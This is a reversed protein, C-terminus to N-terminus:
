KELIDTETHFNKDTLQPPFRYHVRDYSQFFCCTNTIFAVLKYIIDVPQRSIRQSANRRYLCFAPNSPPIGKQENQTRRTDDYQQTLLSLFTNKICRHSDFSLNFRIQRIMAQPFVKRCENWNLLCVCTTTTTGGSM